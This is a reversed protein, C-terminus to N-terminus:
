TERRPLEEVARQLREKMWEEAYRQAEARWTFLPSEQRVGARFLTAQWDWRKTPHRQVLALFGVSPLTLSWSGSVPNYLWATM